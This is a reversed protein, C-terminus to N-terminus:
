QKTLFAFIRKNFDPAESYAEHSLDEYMHLQANTLAAIERSAEGSVVRDQGGGLVLVPCRISSLRDYLDCTMCSEALIRFREPDEAKLMKEAAPMILRYKRRYAPSYGREIYDRVLAADNGERVLQIWTQVAERVVDNPRCLTVALVLKTVCEPHNVAIDQAIMGGQSAGYICAERIGCVEMAAFTDEALDHITCGEQVPEKRDIVTIRFQKAFIRYYLSLMRGSGRISSLRLGPLIVLSAEGSGFQIVHVTGGPVTIDQEILQHNGRAM